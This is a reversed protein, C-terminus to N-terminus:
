MQSGGTESLPAAKGTTDEPTVKNLIGLDSLIKNSIFVLDDNTFKDDDFFTIADKFLMDINTSNYKRLEDKSLLMIYLSPLLNALTFKNEVFIYPSKVLELLAQRGITLTHITFKETSTEDALITDLTTKPNM